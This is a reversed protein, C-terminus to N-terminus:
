GIRVELMVLGLFVTEFQSLKMYWAYSSQLSIFSIFSEVPQFSGLGSLLALTSAIVSPSDIGTIKGLLTRDGGILDCTGYSILEM